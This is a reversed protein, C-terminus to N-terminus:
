FGIFECGLKMGHTHRIIGLQNIKRQGIDDLVYDLSLIQGEELGKYDSVQCMLGGKSIDSILMKGECHTYQRYTKYTGKLNVRRRRERRFELLALFITRCLCRVKVTRKKNKYVAVSLRKSTKCSPCEITATLDDQVFIEVSKM